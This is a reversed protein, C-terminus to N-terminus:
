EHSVRPRMTPVGDRIGVNEECWTKLVVLYPRQACLEDIMTITRDLEDRLELLREKPVRIFGDDAM